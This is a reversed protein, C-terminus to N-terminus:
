YCLFPSAKQRVFSLDISAELAHKESQSPALTRSPLSVGFCVGRCLAGSFCEGLWLSLAVPVQKTSTHARQAIYPVGLFSAFFRLQHLM